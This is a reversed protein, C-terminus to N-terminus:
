NTFNCHSDKIFNLNRVKHRTVTQKLHTDELTRKLSLYTILVHATIELNDESKLTVVHEAM